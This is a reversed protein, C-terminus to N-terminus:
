TILYQDKFKNVEAELHKLDKSNDIVWSAKLKKEEIDMQQDLISNAILESHQDRQVIRKLQIDRPSYVLLNLDFFKEMRKEFLLPVDYVILPSGVFRAMQERFTDPLRNYIFEEV